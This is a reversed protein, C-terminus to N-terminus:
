LYAQTTYSLLHLLDHPAVWYATRSVTGAEAGEQTGTMVDRPSPSLALYGM